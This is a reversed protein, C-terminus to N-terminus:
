RNVMEELIKAVKQAEQDDIRYNRYDSCCVSRCPAIKRDIFEDLVFSQGIGIGKKELLRNVCRNGCGNVAIISTEDIGSLRVVSPSLAITNISFQIIKRSNRSAFIEIVKELLFGREGNAGCVVM